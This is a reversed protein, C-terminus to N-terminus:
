QLTLYSSYAVLRVNRKGVSALRGMVKFSYGIARSSPSTDIALSNLEFSPSSAAHLKKVV